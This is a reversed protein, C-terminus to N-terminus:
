LIFDEQIQCVLLRIVFSGGDVWRVWQYTLDSDMKLLCTASFLSGVNGVLAESSASPDFDVKGIFSGQVLINDDADIRLDDIDLFRGQDTDSNITTIDLFNGSEDLILIFASSLGEESERLEEGAGPDFDVTGTFRGGLVFQNLSNVAMGGVEVTADVGGGISLVSQFEGNTNYEVLFIDQTDGADATVVEDGIAFDMNGSFDGAVYISEDDDIHMSWGESYGFTLNQVEFAWLLEGNV